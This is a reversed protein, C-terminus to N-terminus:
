ARTPRGPRFEWDLERAELHVPLVTRGSDPQAAQYARDYADRWGAPPEHIVTGHAGHDHHGATSHGHHMQGHETHHADRNM